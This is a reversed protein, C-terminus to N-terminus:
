FVEEQVLEMQLPHTGNSELYRRQKRSFHLSVKGPFGVLQQKKIKQVHLETLPDTYDAMRNPRYVTIINDVKNFWMAGGALDYATPVPYKNGDKQMQRPHAVIILYFDREVAWRKAIQLFKSLYKDDRIELDHDLQNYPDIIGGTIGHKAILEDFKEFVYKPTLLDNEPYVYYFHDKVFDMAGRYESETCRYEYYPDINNGIFKHILEDYYENAPYSEPAVVGWKDGEKVSKILCLENVIESKGDNPMGTFLNTQGKKWNFHPNLSNFHTTTGREKGHTFEHLMRDEVEPLYIVGHVPIPRATLLLKSFDGNKMLYENADKIGPPFDIILCKQKKLRRCLEDRLLRGNEDNDTAIYIRTKNQFYTYASDLYSTNKNAGNPVSVVNPFGAEIFSLADMEGEVIIAEDTEEIADLNYFILEADKELHFNKKADRHKVNVLRDNRYYKFQICNTGHYLGSSVRALKLTEESIGRKSFWEFIDKTLRIPEDKPSLYVKSSNICGQYACHHCKFLGKEINVSLCKDTKNDRKHSCQPCLTKIQGIAGNPIEINLQEFIM